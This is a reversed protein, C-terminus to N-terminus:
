NKRKYLVELIENTDVFGPDLAAVKEFADIAEDTKNEKYYIMGMVYYAGKTSQVNLTMVTQLDNLAKDNEGAESYSLGRAFLAQPDDRSITLAMDSYKIAENADGPSGRDIFLGALMICADYDQPNALLAAKYKATEQDFEETSRNLAGKPRSDTMPMMKVQFKNFTMITMSGDQNLQPIFAKDEYEVITSNETTSLAKIEPQMNGHRDVNAPTGTCGVLAAAALLALITIATKM